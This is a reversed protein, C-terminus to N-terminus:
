ESSGGGSDCSGGSDSSSSSSECSSSSSESSRSGSDNGSDWSASAGAGSFEGGGGRFSPESAESRGSAGLMYGAAGAALMGGMGDDSSRSPPTPTATGTKPRITTNRRPVSTPKVARQLRDSVQRQRQRESEEFAKREAAERAVRRVHARRWWVLLGIAILTPLGYVVFLGLYLSM